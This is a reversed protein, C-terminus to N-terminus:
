EEGGNKTMNLTVAKEETVFSESPVVTVEPENFEGAYIGRYITNYSIKWESGELKMRESIPQPSWQQDLFKSKVLKKLEPNGPKKHAGCKKRREEYTKQAHHASCVNDTTNYRLERSM